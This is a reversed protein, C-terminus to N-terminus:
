KKNMTIELLIGKEGKSLNVVNVNSFNEMGRFKAVQKAVTAYDGCNLTLAITGNNYSYADAVIGDIVGSAVDQLIAKANAKSQATLKSKILATRAQVDAVQDIQVNKEFRAKSAAIDTDLSANKKVYVDNVYYFYGWAGPTAALLLLAIFFSAGFLPAKKSIEGQSGNEQYLNIPTMKKNKYCKECM